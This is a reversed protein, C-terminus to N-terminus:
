ARARAHGRGSSRDPRLPDFFPANAAGATGRDAELQVLRLRLLDNETRLSRALAQALREGNVAHANAASLGWRTEWFLALHALRPANDTKAWRAVTAASVGLHRGILGHDQIPLADILL